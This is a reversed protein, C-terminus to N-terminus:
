FIAYDGKVCPFAAFICPSFTQKIFLLERPTEVVTVKPRCFLLLFTVVKFRKESLVHSFVFISINSVAAPFEM